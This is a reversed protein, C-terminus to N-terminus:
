QEKLGVQRMLVVGTKMLGQIKETRLKILKTRTEDPIRLNRELERIQRLLRNRANDIAKFRGYISLEDAYKARVGRIENADGKRSALELRAFITYLGKRNELYTSTDVRESPSAILKRVFPIRQELNGEFEGSLVDPVTSFVLNGLRNVTAGAGGIAFEIWYELVDPSM